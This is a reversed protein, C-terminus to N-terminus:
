SSLLWGAVRATAEDAVARESHPSHGGGAIMEVTLHSVERRVRDLEAIAAAQAPDDRFGREALERAYIAALGPSARSSM